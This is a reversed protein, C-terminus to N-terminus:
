PSDKVCRLSSRYTKDATTRTLIWDGAEIHRLLAKTTPTAETASWWRCSNGANAFNTGTSWGAPLARFGHLDTGSSSTAVGWGSMSKLQRGTSTNPSDVFTQMTTWEADSPVHWGSPCIGQVGSPSSPSSVAGQMVEAWTYLRGNKACSDVEDNYCKGVTNGSGAYGLNEAMWTQSGIKVTRYTKGASDTVSGYEIGTQWPIGYDTVPTSKPAFTAGVTEEKSMTVKCEGTGSCSGTWGAFEYGSDAVATVTVVTSSDYTGGVPDLTVVGNSVASVTLAFRPVVAVAKKEVVSITYTRVNGNLNTVAVSITTTGDNELNVANDTSGNYTISKVDADKTAVAHVTVTGTGAPVSDVYPGANGPAFATLFSGPSTSLTALTSDRAVGAVPYLKRRLTVTYALSKGGNSVTVTISTDTTRDGLEVVGGAWSYAVSAGSLKSTGVVTVTKVGTDVTAAYSTQSSSFTPSLGGVLPSVTLGALSTDKSVQAGAAAFTWSSIGSWLAPRGTSADPASKSAAKVTGAASIPVTGGAETAGSGTARPDSGDLTFWMGSSLALHGGVVLSDAQAVPNEPGVSLPIVVTEEGAGTANGAATGWFRAIAEGGAQDYGLATVAYSSGVPVTGLVLETGPAHEVDSVVDARGPVSVTVKLRAVRPVAVTGVFRPALTVGGASRVTGSLGTEQGNCGLLLWSSLLCSGLAWRM